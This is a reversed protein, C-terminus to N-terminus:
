SLLPDDLLHQFALEAAGILAADNGLGPTRLRIHERCAPLAV